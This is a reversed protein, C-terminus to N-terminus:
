QHGGGAAPLPSRATIPLDARLTAIQEMGTMRLLRRTGAAPRCLLMTADAPLRQRLHALFTLLTACAFTVDALDIVVTAPTAASLRDVADSLAASAAMDIEGALCILASPAGPAAHMTVAFGDTLESEM